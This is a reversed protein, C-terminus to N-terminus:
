KNEEQETRMGKRLLSVIIAFLYALQYATEAGRAMHIMRMRRFLVNTSAEL